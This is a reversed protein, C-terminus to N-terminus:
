GAASPRLARQVRGADRVTFGVDGLKAGAFASIQINRTTM